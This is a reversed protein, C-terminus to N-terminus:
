LRNHFDSTNSKLNNIRAKLVLKLNKYAAKEIQQARERNKSELNDDNGKKTGGKIEDRENELLGKTTAIRV